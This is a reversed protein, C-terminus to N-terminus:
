ELMERIDTEDDRTSTAMGMRSVIELIFPSLTIQQAHFSKFEAQLMTQDPLVKDLILRAAGQAIRPDEHNLQSILLSMAMPSAEDLLAYLKRLLSPNEPKPPRGGGPLSGGRDGCTGPAFRGMSNRKTGRLMGVSEHAIMKANVPV